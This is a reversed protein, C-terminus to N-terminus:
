TGIVMLTGVASSPWGPIGDLFSVAEDIIDVPPEVGEERFGRELFERSLEPKFREVL